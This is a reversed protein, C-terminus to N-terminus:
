EPGSQVDLAPCLMRIWASAAGASFGLEVMLYAAVLTGMPEPLEADGVSGFLAVAGPSARSVALLQDVARLMALRRSEFGLNHVDLGRAAFAAADRSNTQGLCAVASVGLDALLDALFGASFVRATSHPPSARAWEQGAPLLEPASFLLLRGPVLVHVHGNIPLAYHTAMEVDYMPESSEDAAGLWRLTRAHELARWCNILSASRSKVMTDLIKKMASLVHALEKRECLLLYAGCLLCANAVSQSNNDEPCIVISQDRHLDVTDQMYECFNHIVSIHLLPSEKIAHAGGIEVFHTAHTLCFHTEQVRAATCPTFFVHSGVPEPIPM